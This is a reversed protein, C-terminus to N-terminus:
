GRAYRAEIKDGTLPAVAYTFSLGDVAETYDVDKEALIGNKFIALSNARRRYTLTFLTTSDDGNFKDVKFSTQSGGALDVAPASAAPSNVTVNNNQSITVTVNHSM